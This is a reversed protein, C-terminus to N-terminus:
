EEVFSKLKNYLNDEVEIEGAEIVRSTQKDGREGPYFIDTVGPLKGASKVKKIMQTVQKKFDALSVLLEPDIIYVLNGWDGKGIGVFTAGVLPGTFIEVMMALGAGKYNRDFPLIAGDMAKAPDTTLSGESDYAVDGPISEGATKAQILGYYAMAATAMDFVIPKNETPIGIALPNTGFLPEYSGHTTVTEPSGAFVFGLFNEQAIERAYYGIAGTSSSTNNTGVIAFGHEKAKELAIGMARNVVIMGMNNAGDLLASLKTEKIIKIEGANPNKPIGRGVLKVIGQNNGRLQAYMLINLIQSAEEATYGYKLIAKRSLDQLDTVSIKMIKPKRFSDKLDIM